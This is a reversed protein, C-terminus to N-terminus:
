RRAWLISADCDNSNPWRYLGTLIIATRAKALNLFSETTPQLDITRGKASDIVTVGITKDECGTGPALRLAGDQTGIIRTHVGTAPDNGSDRVRWASAPQPALEAPRGKWLVSWKEFAPFEHAGHRGDSRYWYCGRQQYLATVYYGPDDNLRTGWYSQELLEPGTGDLDLVDDIGNKDYTDHSITYFPVPRGKEDFSLALIWTTPAM